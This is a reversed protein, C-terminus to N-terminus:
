IFARAPRAMWEAAFSTVRLWLSPEAQPAEVRAEGAKLACLYVPARRDFVLTEGTYLVFDKVSHGQTIWLIGSICTLRVGRPSAITALQGTSLAVVEDIGHIEVRVTNM